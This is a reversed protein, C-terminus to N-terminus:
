SKHKYKGAAIANFIEGDAIHGNSNMVLDYLDEPLVRLVTMLGHVGKWWDPRMGQAERPAKYAKISEPSMEKSMMMGIMGQPYGPTKFPETDLVNKPEPTNPIAATYDMINMMGRVRPGVQRVMHNMMHHVMHCHFIWDGPNFAIFEFDQVMAVGVLTNNRPIWASEPIRGGETGTIWFTHGHLHIPHHQMPSFNMLRVRVREGHKAVLPTTFPGSRGNITHWNWDMLSTDNITANPPIYFNQYVLAFDRDVPPDYAIQPHIIFLGCMGMAEQMPVHAHYFFTGTQHLDFEYNFTTGPPIPDQILHPVGDMAVPLEFGHWHMTTPEPLQNHVVIRVRDGQYAEIIPGPLSGNFGWVDMFYGPLFEQKVAQCYLHFEKVKGIQKFALKKLDPAQVPVPPLGSARLGPVLKGLYHDSDPPGGFSPTYRSYSNFQANGSNNKSKNGAAEASMLGAAGMGLVASSTLLDRRTIKNDDPM